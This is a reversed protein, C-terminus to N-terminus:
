LSVAAVLAAALSLLAPSAPPAEALLVRLLGAAALSGAIGLVLGLAVLRGAWSVVLRAIAGRPAGLALRVGIERRRRAAAYSLPAFLGLAALALGLSACVSVTVAGTREPAISEGWGEELSEVEAFSLDPDVRWLASRVAGALSAPAAATRAMLHLTVGSDTEA